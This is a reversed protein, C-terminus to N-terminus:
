SRSPQTEIHSLTVHDRIGQCLFHIGSKKSVDHLNAFPCQGFVTVLRQHILLWCLTAGIHIQKASPQQDRKLDAVSLTAWPSVHLPSM